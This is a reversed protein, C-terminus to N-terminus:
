CKQIYHYYFYRLMQSIFAKLIRLINLPKWVLPCALIVFIVLTIPNSSYNNSFYLRLFEGFPLKYFDRAQHFGTTKTNWTLKLSPHTILKVGSRYARITFEYDSTYHPLLNPRFGRLKNLDQWHMFLGNTSMCNVPQHPLPPDFKFRRWDAFVDPRIIHGTHIDVALSGLFTNQLGNMISVALELYEPTLITDDNITLIIDDPLPHCNNLLYLYGQHLSGAWWWNGVGRIIIIKNKDLLQSVFKSTEDTSGDDILILKYNTYKQSQLCKIFSITVDKRNHVPLFIYVCACISLSSM